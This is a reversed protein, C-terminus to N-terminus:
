KEPYKLIPERAAKVEDPRGVPTNHPASQVVEPNNEVEDAIKLMTDAVLDLNEKTETETPEFMMAEHVILPFYVTPPHMGYDIMRKAMDMTSCGKEKQWDGSIVFEHMVPNDHPVKFRDKIRRFIYNANAVAGESANKLGEAGNGLIYCYTKLCVLFSGTFARVKGISKPLNYELAYKDDKKLVRPKPLYPVLCEKVGVPGAGPGGGGHPTSFSKHVNLHVVDFGMDGPRVQMLIANINAGDYYILGGADHVMTTMADVQEEFIGLTNPNTLMLGALQDRHKEIKSRMDEIDVQGNEASAVEVVKFGAMVASAPNTGHASDPILMINREPHGHDEHYAKILMIGTLEGHAGAAPQFTFADMGCVDCLQKELEYYLQLNGQVTEDAQYPHTSTFGALSALKEHLKPNYKMTCSGLLYPGNDNGFNRASMNTYHRAVQPESLNPLNLPLHRVRDEGYYAKFDPKEVDCEAMLRIPAENEPLDFVLEEKGFLM